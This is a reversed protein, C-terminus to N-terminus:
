EAKVAAAKDMLWAPFYLGITALIVIILARGPSFLIPIANVALLLITLWKAVQRYGGPPRELLSPPGSPMATTDVQNGFWLAMDKPTVPTSRSWTLEADDSEASLKATGYRFDTVRNVDGIEVRWNFAGAAYKVVARYDYLKDYTDGDLVAKDATYWYPWGDLVSAREWGEDTEILWLFGKQPAYLLYETWEGAEDSIETRRMFGIVTYGVTAITGKAGLPLTPKVADVRKAAAIVEAVPGAVDLSAHCTQCLLHSTAGPSFAISAGCSPCELNSVKGKVRGASDTITEPDRLLQAKLEDLKVSRGRYITPETNSGGGIPAPLVGVDSYDLTVFESARRFDAVRAQYGEGVTFPLEGQGGACQASRVDGAIFLLASGDPATGLNLPSGAAIRDFAPLPVRLTARDVARTFTYQGSGDSLWAGDGHDDIVYWENWFGAPYRLQIRGIVTFSRGDLSGSTNIQIPSFDELVASMKGIDRVSDADKILTSSCFGCVAMVSAASRFTVPAGCNPCSITNM